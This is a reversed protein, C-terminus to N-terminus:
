SPLSGFVSPFRRLTAEWDDEHHFRVVVYGADELAVAVADDRRQREPYDHPPGDIYVAVQEAAYLYDPRTSYEALLTQAESPLRLGRADLFDLWRRELTSGSLRDLMERHASRPAETPSTSVSARSLELLVDRIAQRDLLAHDRQNRYSMLCDYCAAECRETAGPAHDQDEGTDPDFHCLQLAERAVLALDGPADLLRRLVGAGGEASEYILLQRRDGRDPLPEAALEDDELQFYVQLGQKLAAELSAMM